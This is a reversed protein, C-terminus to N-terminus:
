IRLPLACANWLCCANCVWRIADLEKEAVPDKRTIWQAKWDSASLLGTEFWTPASATMKGASDWTIVKWAYRQQPKLAAGAYAIDVSESSAVRGSDWSSAHGARLNKLDSDVLIEYASQAWDPTTADSIWSFTPQPSDLGIPTKLANTQLHVPAAHAASALLAFYLALKSM